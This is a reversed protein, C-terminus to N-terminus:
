DRDLPDDGKQLDRNPRHIRDTLYFLGLLTNSLLNGLLFSYFIWFGGFSWAAFDPYCVQIWYTQVAYFGFGGLYIALSVLALYGFLFSLFRRRTLTEIHHTHKLTVADSGSMPLDMERGGFTAVAALAAIFFGTLISLLDSSRGLIDLGELAESRFLDSFLPLSLLAAFLVPFVFDFKAKEAHSIQLYKLPVFFRWM